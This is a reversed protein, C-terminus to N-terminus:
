RPTKDAYSQYRYLGSSPVASGIVLTLLNHARIHTRPISGLAKPLTSLARLRPAM